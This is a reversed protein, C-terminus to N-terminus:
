VGTTENPPTINQVSHWSINPLLKINTYNIYETNITGVWVGLYNLLMTHGTSPDEPNQRFYRLTAKLPFESDNSNRETETHAILHIDIFCM